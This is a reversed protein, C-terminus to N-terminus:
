RIPAQDKPKDQALAASIPAALFAALALAGLARAVPPRTSAM